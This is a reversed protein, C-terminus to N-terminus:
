ICTMNVQLYKYTSGGYFTGVHIQQNNALDAISSIPPHGLSKKYLVGIGSLMFPYTFDVAKTLSPNCIRRHIEFSEPCFGCIM